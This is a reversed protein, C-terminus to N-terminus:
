SAHEYLVSVPRRGANREPAALSRRTGGLKGLLHRFQAFLDTSQDRVGGRPEGRPTRGFHGRSHLPQLLFAPEVVRARLLRHFIDDGPARRQSAPRARARSRKLFPFFTGGCIWRIRASSRSAETKGSATAQWSFVTPSIRIGSCGNIRSTIFSTRVSAISTSPRFCTKDPIASPLM